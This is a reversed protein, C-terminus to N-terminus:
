PVGILILRQSPRTAAVYLLQQFELLNDRQRKRIDRIDVFANQFTSGQSNHVTLAYIAQAHVFQDRFDHWDQWTEKGTMVADKIRSLADQYANLDRPIDITISVGMDTRVAARWVPVGAREDPEIDEIDVEQNVTLDIGDAENKHPSRILAREGPLFLTGATKADGHLWKRIKANIQAVRDNTWCLYRFTDPNQAFEDSQFARELWSDVQAHPPAWIGGGDSQSARCWSWDVAEMDQSLRILRAAEIIPNGEAQRVIGSIHSAPIVDFARSRKEGVPPLQAPDGCLVVCRAQLHRDIHEMMEASLMSAEDIVVVTANVPEARRKREFQKKDSRAKAPVLSLLSHVTKCEVDLGAGRLKSSIVEVAKHTPAAMVFKVSGDEIMAEAFKQLVTTKGAGAYGTLLHQRRMIASGALADLASQQGPTLTIEDLTSM